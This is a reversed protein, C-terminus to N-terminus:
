QDNGRDFESGAEEEPILIDPRSQQRLGLTAGSVVELAKQQLPGEQDM